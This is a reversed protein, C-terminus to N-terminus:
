HNFKKNKSKHSYQRIVGIHEDLWAGRESIFDKIQAVAEDHSRPNREAPRILNQEFTSGWVDFNREIAPGLYTVTEDIYQYLYRENLYSQRLERYREIIQDTFREDKTLMFFWVNDQMEFQHPDITSYRFNDCASNFDWIVMKYKGGIDRYLYTSLAGADYNTTFENIIFYDVFSRIDIDHHYGYKPTNYDFSYLSKEFASFDHRIADALTQSLDSSRPYQIDLQQFHRYAYHTFTDISKLATSSGRDLRVVYGTKDMGEIPESVNVRSDEGNTITETMVYLGKYEGNIMLECFRVNPAYGMFEGALNYWMYNRILSKDLFPGHLAWEYHPAMGMVGERRYSGDNSTLRLLYGKKEYYRSSNGRIRILIDSELDPQDSPHHNHTDDSMIACSAALMKDGESTATFGIEEGSGTTMPEGPIDEGGTEILILPLHTCLETGDCTCGTDPQRAIAHQHVRVPVHDRDLRAAAFATILMLLVTVIGIVRHKM